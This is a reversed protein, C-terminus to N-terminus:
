ITVTFRVRRVFDYGFNFVGMGFKIERQKIQLIFQLTQERLDEDLNNNSLKYLIAITENAKYYITQCIHNLTVIMISYVIGWIYVFLNNLLQGFIINKNIYITYVQRCLEIIFAFYSTMQLSMQINFVKNLERSILCMQLHVHLNPTDKFIRVTFRFIGVVMSVIATIMIIVNPWSMYLNYLYPTYSNYILYYFFYTFLTSTILFYLYTFYLRPQGLPYEFLGLGCFSGIIFLPALATQITKTM